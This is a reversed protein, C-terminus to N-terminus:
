NILAPVDQAPEKSFRTHCFHTEKMSLDPQVMSCHLYHYLASLTIIHINCRNVAPRTVGAGKDPMIADNGPLCLRSNAHAIRSHIPRVLSKLFGDPIRQRFRGDM